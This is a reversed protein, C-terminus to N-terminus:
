SKFHPLLTKFADTDSRGLLEYISMETSSVLAGGREMRALGVRRNDETRSGVADGAVHVTYGHGMAGLVTQAVCIHSEIGAVLLADRGPFGMLRAIFPESGFCGFSVKDLPEAGPAAARVEPVTEGLGRAYQTTLVVPIGLVEATKLLLLGNKLLRERDQIPPLLKEQLDVMVLITREARLLSLAPNTSM